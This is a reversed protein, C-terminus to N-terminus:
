GSPGRFRATLRGLTQEAQVGLEGARLAAESATQQDGALRARGALENQQNEERLIRVVKRAGRVLAPDRLVRAERETREVLTRGRFLDADLQVELAERGVTQDALLVRTADAAERHLGAAISVQRTTEQDDRTLGSPGTVAVRSTSSSGCAGLALCCAALCLSRLM